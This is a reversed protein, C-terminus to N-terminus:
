LLSDSSSIRTNSYGSGPHRLASSTTVTSTPSIQGVSFKRLESRSRRDITGSLVFNINSSLCSSSLLSRVLGGCVNLSCVVCRFGPHAQVLEVLAFGVTAVLQPIPYARWSIRGMNSVLTSAFISHLRSHSRIRRVPLRTSCTGKFNAKALGEMNARGIYIRVLKNDEENKQYARIRALPPEAM